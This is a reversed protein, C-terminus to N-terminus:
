SAEGAHKMMEALVQRAWVQEPTLLTDEEAVLVLDETRGNYAM